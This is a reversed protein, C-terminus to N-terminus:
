ESDNIVDKEGFWDLRSTGTGEGKSVVDLTSPVEIEHDRLYKIMMDIYDGDTTINNVTSDSLKTLPVNM